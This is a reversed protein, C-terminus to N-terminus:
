EWNSFLIYEMLVKVDVRIPGESVWVVSASSFRFSSPHSYVPMMRFCNCRFIGNETDPTALQLAAADQQLRSSLRHTDATLVLAPEEENQGTLAATVTAM